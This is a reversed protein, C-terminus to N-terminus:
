HTIQWALLALKQEGITACRDFAGAAAADEWQSRFGAPLDGYSEVLDHGLLLAVFRATFGLGDAHAAGRRKARDALIGKDVPTMM